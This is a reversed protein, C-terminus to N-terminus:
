PIPTRLRIMLEIRSWLPVSGSKTSPSSRKMTRSHFAGRCDHHPFGVSVIGSIMEWLRLRHLRYVEKALKFLCRKHASMKPWEPTWLFNGSGAAWVNKWGGDVGSGLIM